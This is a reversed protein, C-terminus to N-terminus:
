GTCPATQGPRPRVAARTARRCSRRTRSARRARDRLELVGLAGEYGTARLLEAAPTSTSPSARAPCSTAAGSARGSRGAWSGRRRHGPRAAGPVRPRGRPAGGYLIALAVPSDATGSRSATPPRRRLQAAPLGRRLGGRRVDGRRRRAARVRALAGDGGGRGGAHAAGGATRRDAGENRAPTDILSKDVLWEVPAKDDTYVDGGRLPQGLRGGDGGDRRRAARAADHAGGGGLRDRSPEADSGM